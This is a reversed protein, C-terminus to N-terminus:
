VRGVSNVAKDLSADYFQVVKQNAEYARLASMLSVAAQAADVNSREIYGQRVAANEGAGLPGIGDEEGNYMYLGDGERVLDNPNNVRTILLQMGTDANTRSDIFRNDATLELQEEAIGAPFVIPQGNTGLVRDGNSTVLYGAPDLSFSGDRTYRTEGNANQVTFYAQPQYTVEGDESVAKGSADFTVGPVILDSVLAFDLPRSTEALDGQLQLFPAEEAFVGTNVKGVKTVPEDNLGTMSLLMEPFSRNVANEQKYGPTNINAINNTVTDHIRQQAVMGSAATYLGRLM